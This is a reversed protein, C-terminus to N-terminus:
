KIETKSKKEIKFIEETALRVKAVPVDKPPFCYYLANNDGICIVDGIEYWFYDAYLSYSARAKQEYNLKGDAGVLSFGDKTHTLRGDGVFNIAKYDIMVGIKVPVDLLYENNEIEERVQQREWAYWDPIHSFLTEGNKASLAGYEDMECIIGCSNCTLQTGKGTTKGEACCHPCKYLIRELGDARFPETVKIKNDKQWKFSDFTFARDLIESIENSSLSELQEKTLLVEINASVNVKRTQLGNYLPDRTFAGGTKIFVVPVGLRKLLAGLQRPLATATGDFSYSAEPYMLVSTKKKFLMHKIDGILNFDTVFKKTPICGLLRMLLYKGIFGDSTCVIGFRHKPFLLKYAIKLDIFSSHNMLIMCPGIDDPIKGTSKFKTAIFDPISLIRILLGLLFLPKRPKKQKPKEVRLLKEYSIKRTKIKM